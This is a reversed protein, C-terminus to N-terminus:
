SKLQKFGKRAEEILKLSAPALLPATFILWWNHRIMAYIPVILLLVGIAYVFGILLYQVYYYAELEAEEIKSRKKFEDYPMKARQQADERAKRVFDQYAQRQGESANAAPRAPRRRDAAPRNIQRDYFTRKDPDSLIEYAETVKLFKTAADARPNVDPHLLKARKRYAKKIDTPTATRSLGLVDYYSKGM